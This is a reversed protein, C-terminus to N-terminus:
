LLANTALAVAERQAAEVAELFRDIDREDNYVGLSARCVAEVGLHRLLPQACHTGARIAVGRRDLVHAVAAADVGRVNFAVIGCRENGDGPTPGYLKVTPLAALGEVMRRVLAQEHIRIAEFGVRGLFRAAEAMGPAGGVNQTGAELGGPAADFTATQEFVTDVMGGGRLLPATRELLERHGYLVGIGMPGYMKHGSFAAFDAGLTRVDLPEHAVSQACDVVVIAGHGHAAQAIREVPLTCGLVNSTRTVAVIRTRPGITRDIEDDSIHGTRDPVLPVLRAGTRKAVAQWPVLNSHHELLSVVVEDGPKLVASGYGFAALNLAHTAGSTFVIEDADAGVFRALEARASECTETAARALRHLSRHPNACGTRYFTDVADLVCAPKQTTAANDLYALMEGRADCDALLPFTARLPAGPILMVGPTGDYGPSPLAM